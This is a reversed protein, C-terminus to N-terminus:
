RSKLAREIRRRMKEPTTQAKYAPEIYPRSEVPLTVSSSTSVSRVWAQFHASSRAREWAQRSKFYLYDRVIKGTPRSSSYVRYPRSAAPRSVNVGKKRRGFRRRFYAPTLTRTTKKGQGGEELVKAIRNSGLAPAGVNYASKDNPDKEYRISNKLTGTHSLPPEGPRSTRWNPSRENRGGSKILRKAVNRVDIATWEAAKVAARDCAQRFEALRQLARKDDVNFDIRMFNEKRFLLSNKNAM